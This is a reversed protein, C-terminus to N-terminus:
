RKDHIKVSRCNAPGSCAEGLMLVEAVTFVGLVSGACVRYAPGVPMWAACAIIVLLILLTRRSVPGCCHGSGPSARFMGAVLTAIIFILANFGTAVIRGEQARPGPMHLLFMWAGWLVILPVSAVGVRLALAKRMAFYAANVGSNPDTDLWSFSPVGSVLWGSQAASGVLGATEPRSWTFCGDQVYICIWAISAGAAILLWGLDTATGVVLGGAVAFVGALSTVVGLRFVLNFSDNWRPAGESSEGIRWCRGCSSKHLVAWRLVSPVILSGLGIAFPFCRFIIQWDPVYGAWSDLVLATSLLVAWFIDKWGRPWPFSIEPTEM